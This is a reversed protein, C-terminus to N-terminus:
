RLSRASLNASEPPFESHANVQNIKVFYFLTVDYYM